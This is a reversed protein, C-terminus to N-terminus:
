LSNEIARKLGFTVVKLLISLVEDLNVIRAHKNASYKGIALRITEQEDDTTHHILNSPISSGIDAQLLAMIGTTEAFIECGDYYEFSNFEVSLPTNSQASEAFDLLFQEDCDDFDTLDIKGFIDDEITSTKLHNLRVQVDERFCALTEYVDIQLKTTENKIKSVVFSIQSNLAESLFALKGNLLVPTLGNNVTNVTNVTKLANMM